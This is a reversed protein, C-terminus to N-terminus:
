ICWKSISIAKCSKQLKEMSRNWVFTMKGLLEGAISVIKYPGRGNSNLWNMRTGEWTGGLAGWLGSFCPEMKGWVGPEVKLHAEM